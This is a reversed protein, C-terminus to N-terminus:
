RRLRALRMASTSSSLSHDSSWLYGLVDHSVPESERREGRSVAPLDVAHDAPNVYEHEDQEHPPSPEEGVAQDTEPSRPMWHRVVGADLRVRRAIELDAHRHDLRNQQESERDRQPGRPDIAHRRGVFRQDHLDGGLLEGPVDVIGAWVAYEAAGVELQEVELRVGQSEIAGIRGGLVVDRREILEIQGHVLRDDHPQSALVHDM